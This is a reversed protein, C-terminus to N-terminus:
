EAPSQPRSRLSGGFAGAVLEDLNLNLREGSGATLALSYRPTHIRSRMGTGSGPSQNPSLDVSSRQTRQRKGDLKTLRCQFHPAYHM